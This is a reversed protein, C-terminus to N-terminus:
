KKDSLWGRLVQAVDEPQRDILGVVEGQRETRKEIEAQIVAAQTEAEQKEKVMALAKQTDGGVSLLENPDLGLAAAALYSNNDSGSGLELATDGVPLALPYRSVAAKKNSRWALFLVLVVIFVAAGTEAMSKYDATKAAAQQKDLEQQASATATNDFPLKTVKITDGRAPNLGVAASVLDQLEQPSATVSSDVVVAVSMSKVAGPAAEVEKTVKGVAYQTNTDTKAYNQSSSAVTTTTVPGVQNGALVGAPNGGASAANPGYGENSTTQSLVPSQGPQDFTETTTKTKDFDLAATIQVHAKNPGTVNGLLDEVSKAVNAQFNVTQATQGDGAGNAGTINQGPAALMRGKDDAVTVDDASLGEVSSAVLHVISQVQTASLDKGPKTRVLVSAEPKVNDNTFLDEKPIVLHVTAVDVDQIAGITKSMEGELARQYDVRQMFDSTTIGSKDLLTYGPQGETPLGKSSMDLRLQYVKSSPVMVTAGGDKLQYTVGQSTLDQTIASADSAQLNSYLPAMTDTSSMRMFVLAGIVTGAFAVLLMAKQGMTFGSFARQAQQRAVKIDIKPAM